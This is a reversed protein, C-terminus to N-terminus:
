YKNLLLSIVTIVFMIAFTLASDKFAELPTNGLFLVGIIFSGIPLIVAIIAYVLIFSLVKKTKM